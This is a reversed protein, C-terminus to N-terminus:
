YRNVNPGLKHTLSFYAYDTDNKEGIKITYYEESLMAELTFDPVNALKQSLLSISGEWKAQIDETVLQAPSIGICSFPKLFARLKEKNETPIHSHIEACGAQSIDPM